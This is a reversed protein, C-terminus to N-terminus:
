RWFNWEGEGRQSPRSPSRNLKRHGNRQSDAQRSCQGWLPASKMLSRSLLRDSSLGDISAVDFHGDFDYAILKLLGTETIVLPNVLDALPRDEHRVAECNDLLGAYADRQQWLGQAPALDCHVRVEAPLEQQLALVVLYLRAHDCDNIGAVERAIEGGTAAYMLRSVFDIVM